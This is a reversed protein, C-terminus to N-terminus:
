VLQNLVEFGAFSKGKIWHNLEKQGGHCDSRWHKNREYEVYLGSPKLPCTDMSITM